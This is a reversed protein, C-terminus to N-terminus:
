LSRAVSEPLRRIVGEGNGNSEAMENRYAM